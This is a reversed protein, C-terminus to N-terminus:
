CWKPIFVTPRGRTLLVGVVGAAAGAGAGIAAGRGLDAAAGAAAGVATTTGVGAVDRGVTTGGSRNVLQTHLPVPQGDILTLDTLEVGLSSTGAIRGAKKAESVRGAITQGRDAVIWGNVVVPKVLSATFGDGQQNHDSSLVQNLRITVFTGPQITLQAPPPPPPEYNPPPGYPPPGQQNVPYQGQPYQNQQPYPNQQPYAPPQGQAATQTGLRRWPGNTASGNPAPTNPGAAETTPYPPPPAVPEDQALLAPAFALAGTLVSRTVISTKM